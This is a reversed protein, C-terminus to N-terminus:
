WVICKQLFNQVQRSFENGSILKELPLTKSGLGFIVSMKEKYMHFPRQGTLMEVVTAGVSRCLSLSIPTLILIMTRLRKFSKSKINIM